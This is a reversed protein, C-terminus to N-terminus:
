LEIEEDESYPRSERRKKFLVRVWVTLNYVPIMASACINIGLKRARVILRISFVLYCVVLLFCAVSIGYVYKDALFYMINSLEM